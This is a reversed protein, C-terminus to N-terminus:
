RLIAASHPDLKNLIENITVTVISDTNVADVYDEEIFNLLRQMKEQAVESPSGSLPYSNADSQSGILI